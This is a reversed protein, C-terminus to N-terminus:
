KGKVTAWEPFQDPYEQGAAEFAIAAAMHRVRHIVEIRLSLGRYIEVRWGDVQDDPMAHIVRVVAYRWGAPMTAFAREIVTEPTPAM